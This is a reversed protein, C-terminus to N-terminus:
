RGLAHVISRGPADGRGRGRVQRSLENVEIRFAAQSAAGPLPTLTAEATGDLTAMRNKTYTATM